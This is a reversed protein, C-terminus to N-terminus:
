VQSPTHYPTNQKVLAPALDFEISCRCILIVQPLYGLLAKNLFIICHHCSYLFFPIVKYSSFMQVFKKIKLNFNLDM